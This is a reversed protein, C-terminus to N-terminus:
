YLGDHNILFQKGPSCDEVNAVSWVFQYFDPSLYNVHPFGKKVLARCVGVGLDSGSNYVLFQTSTDKHQVVSELSVLSTIHVAGRIKGLNAHSMGAKNDFEDDPRTDLIVLNKQKILLDIASEPDLMAYPPAGTLLTNLCDRSLRHDNMLGELGGFLNYISAFGKARLIEVVDMSNIGQQDYLLVPKNAPIRLEDLKQAFVSQPINVANKLRGINHQQLSDKSEFEPGTRIDIIVLDPTDRILQFADFSNVNKYDLSTVMMKNKYPFETASSENVLTMGGNINYVKKFGNEALLKSVRRSRQSHSCYIFVPQDAYKKLEPLHASVSDISINVSGRIRGINLATYRSTDAYEGPSRVDLLLFNHLSDMLRFAETLYVAQYVTNDYKFPHQAQAASAFFAFAILLYKNRLMSTNKLHHVILLLKALCLMRNTM